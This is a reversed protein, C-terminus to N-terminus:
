PCNYTSVAVCEKSNKTVQVDLFTEIRLTHSALCLQLNMFLLFSQGSFQIRLWGNKFAWDNQISKSIFSRDHILPRGNLLSRPHPRTSIKSIIKKGRFGRRSFKEIICFHSEQTLLGAQGEMKKERNGRGGLDNITTWKSAYKVQTEYHTENYECSGLVM